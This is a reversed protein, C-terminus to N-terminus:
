SRDYFEGFVERADLWEDSVDGRCWMSYARCDLHYDGGIWPGGIIGPSTGSGRDEGLELVRSCLPQVPRRSRPSSVPLELLASDTLTAAEAYDRARVVFVTNDGDPGDPSEAHGFRITIYLKM